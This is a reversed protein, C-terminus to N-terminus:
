CAQCIGPNQGRGFGYDICREIPIICLGNVLQYGAACEACQVPNVQRNCNSLRPWAMYSGDGFTYRYFISSQLQQDVLTRSAFVFCQVGMMITGSACKICRGNSVDQPSACQLGQVCTFDGQLTFNPACRLCIEDQSYLECNAVVRFICANNILTLGQNCATIQGFANVSSIKTHLVNAYPFRTIFAGSSYAGAAAASIAPLGNLNVVGRINTVQEGRAMFSRYYIKQDETMGTGLAWGSAARSCVRDAGYALCYPHYFVCINRFPMLGQSCRRCLNNADYDLCDLNVPYCNKQYLLYGSLACQKCDSGTLYVECGAVNIYCRKDVQDLHYGAGCELCKSQDRDRRLCNEAKKFCFRERLVYGNPDNENICSICSGNSNYAACNPDVYACVSETPSLPKSATYISCQTCRGASDVALCNKPLRFFQNPGTIIYGIFAEICTRNESYRICIDRECFGQPSLIHGEQCRLCVYSNNRFDVSVCRRDRYLCKDNEPYFYGSAVPCNTLNFNRYCFADINLFYDQNCGTCYDSLPALVNCNVDDQKVPELCIGDIAM